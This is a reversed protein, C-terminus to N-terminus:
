TFCTQRLTEVEDIAKTIKRSLEGCEKEFGRPKECYGMEAAVGDLLELLKATDKSCRISEKEFERQLPEIARALDRLQKSFKEDAAREAAQEFAQYFDGVDWNETKVSM